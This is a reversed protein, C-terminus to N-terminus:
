GLAPAPVTGAFPHIQCGKWGRLQTWRPVVHIFAGKVCHVWDLCLQLRHACGLARGQLLLNASCGQRECHPRVGRELQCAVAHTALGTHALEVMTACRAQLAHRRTCSLEFTLCRFVLTWADRAGGNASTCIGPGGNLPMAYLIRVSRLM